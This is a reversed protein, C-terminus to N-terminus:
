IAMIEFIHGDNLISQLQIDDVLYSQMQSRQNIFWITAIKSKLTHNKTSQGSKSKAKFMRLIEQTNLNEDKRKMVSGDSGTFLWRIPKGQQYLITDLIHMNQRKSAKDAWLCKFLFSFSEVDSFEMIDDGSM